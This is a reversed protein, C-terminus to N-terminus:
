FQPMLAVMSIWVRGRMDTQQISLATQSSGFDAGCSPHTTARRHARATQFRASALLLALLSGHQFSM